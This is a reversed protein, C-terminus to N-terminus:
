FYASHTVCYEECKNCKHMGKEHPDIYILFCNRSVGSVDIFYKLPAAEEEENIWSVM